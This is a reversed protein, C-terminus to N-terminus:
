VEVRGDVSAGGQLDDSPASSTVSLAFRDKDSQYDGEM